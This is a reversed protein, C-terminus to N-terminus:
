ILLRGSLNEGDLSLEFLQAATRVSGVAWSPDSSDAEGMPTKGDGSTCRLGGVGEGLSSSSLDGGGAAWV